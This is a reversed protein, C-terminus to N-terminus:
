TTRKYRFIRKEWIGVEKIMQPNYNELNKRVEVIYEWLEMSGISTINKGSLGNTQSGKNTKINRYALRINEELLIKEMLNRQKYGGKSREYLNDYVEQTCYYENNRLQQIKKREEEM